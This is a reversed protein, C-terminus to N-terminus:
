RDCPPHVYDELRDTSYRVAALALTILAILAILPEM